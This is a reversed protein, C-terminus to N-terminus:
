EPQEGHRQLLYDRRLAAEDGDEVAVARVAQRHQHAAAVVGADAAADGGAHRRQLRVQRVRVHHAGPEGLPDRAEDHRVALSRWRRMLDLLDGETRKRM